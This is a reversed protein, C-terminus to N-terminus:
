ATELGGLVVVNAREAEAAARPSRELDGTAAQSAVSARARQARGGARSKQSLLLAHSLSVCSGRGCAQRKPPTRLM